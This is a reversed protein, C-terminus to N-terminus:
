SRPADRLRPPDAASAYSARFERALGDLKAELRELTAEAPEKSRLTVHREAIERLLATYRMERESAERRLEEVVARPIRLSTTVMPEPTVNEGSAIEEAADTVSYHEALRELEQETRPLRDTMEDVENVEDM